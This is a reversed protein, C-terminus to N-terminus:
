CPMYRFGAKKREYVGGHKKLLDRSKLNLKSEVGVKGYYLLNAMKKTSLNNTNKVKIKQSKPYHTIYKEIYEVLTSMSKTVYFVPIEVWM